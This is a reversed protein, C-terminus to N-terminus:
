CQKKHLLLSHFVEDSDVKKKGLAAMLPNPGKGFMPVAGPPLQLYIM